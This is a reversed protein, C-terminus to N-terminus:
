EPTRLRFTGKARCSQSLSGCRRHRFQSWCGLGALLLASLTTSSEPVTPVAGPVFATIYEPTGFSSGELIIPEVVDLLLGLDQYADSEVRVLGEHYSDLSTYVVFGPHSVGSGLGPWWTVSLLNGMDNLGAFLPASGGAASNVEIIGLSQTASVALVQLNRGETAPDSVNTLDYWFTLGGLPNHPDGEYVQTTLAATFALGPSDQVTTTISDLL